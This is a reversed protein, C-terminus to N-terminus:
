GETWGVQGPCNQLVVEMLKVAPIVSLEEFDGTLTHRVM